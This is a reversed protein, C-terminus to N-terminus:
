DLGLEEVLAIYAGATWGKDAPAATDASRSLVNYRRALTGSQQFADHVTKLWNLGIDAADEMFDYDILGKIVFFIEPAASSPCDRCAEPEVFLLGGPAAFLSLQKQMAAAQEESAIETFLTLFASLSRAAPATKEDLPRDIFFQQKEDWLKQLADKIAESKQLLGADGVTDAESQLDYIIRGSRCLLANLDVAAYRPAADAYLRRSFAAAELDPPLQVEPLHYLGDSTRFHDSSWYNFEATVEPLLRRLWDKDGTARYLDRVMWPLLPLEPIQAQAKLNNPPVFGRRRSLYALNEVHRRAQEVQKLRLLGLNVFYADWYYLAGKEDASLYPYPLAILHEDIEGTEKVRAELQQQFVPFLSHLNPSM